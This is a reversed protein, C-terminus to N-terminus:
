PTAPSEAPQEVTTVPEDVLPGPARQTSNIFFYCAAMVVVAVIVFAEISIHYGPAQIPNAPHFFRGGSRRRVRRQVKRLFDRPPAKSPLGGLLERASRAQDLAQILEADAEIEARASADLTGDLYETLRAERTEQSPHTQSDIM